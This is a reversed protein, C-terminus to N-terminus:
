NSTQEWTSCLPPRPSADDIRPKQVRFTACLSGALRRWKSLFELKLSSSDWHTGLTKLCGGYREPFTLIRQQNKPLHFISTYWNAKRESLIM